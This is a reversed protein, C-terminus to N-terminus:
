MAPAYNAPLSNETNTYGRSVLRETELAPGAIAGDRILRERVIANIEERLAHSPALLGVKAREAPSLRHWRAAAAGALNDPKVEAVNPGLKEFARGIEGALLAEIAAKLEPDRQRRIEDMVAIKIGAQQLQAFPKGADVADPQKQDGVLVVRPLRMVSAIRLQYSAQVTSALSVEGVVLATKKFATNNPAANHGRM